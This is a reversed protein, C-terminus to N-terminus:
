VCNSILCTIQSMIPHGGDFYEDTWRTEHHTHMNHGLHIICFSTIFPLFRHGYENEEGNEYSILDHDSVSGSQVHSIGALQLFLFPHYLFLPGLQCM